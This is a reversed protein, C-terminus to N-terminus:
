AADGTPNPLKQLEKEITQDLENIFHEASTLWEKM